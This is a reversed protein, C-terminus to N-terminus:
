SVTLLIISRHFCIVYKFLLTPTSYLTITSSCHFLVIASCHRRAIFSRSTARSKKRARQSGPHWQVGKSQTVANSQLWNIVSDFFFFRMSYTVLFFFFFLSKLFTMVCPLEIENQKTKGLQM